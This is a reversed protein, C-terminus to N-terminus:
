VYQQPAPSVSVAETRSQSISLPVQPLSLTPGMCRSRICISSHGPDKGWTEGNVGIVYIGAALNMTGTQPSLTLEPMPNDCRGALSCQNAPLYSLGIGSEVKDGLRPSHIQSCSSKQRLTGNPLMSYFLTPLNAVKQSFLEFESLLSRRNSAHFGSIHCDIHNIEQFFSRYM